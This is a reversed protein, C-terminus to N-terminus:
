GVRGDCSVWEDILLRGFILAYLLKKVLADKDPLTSLNSPRRSTTSLTPLHQVGRQNRLFELSLLEPAVSSSQSNRDILLWDSTEEKSDFHFFDSLKSSVEWHRCYLLFVDAYGQRISTGDSCLLERTTQRWSFGIFRFDSRYGVAEPLCDPIPIALPIGILKTETLIM